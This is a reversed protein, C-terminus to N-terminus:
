RGTAASIPPLQGTIRYAPSTTGPQQGPLLKAEGAPPMERPTAGPKAPAGPVPTGAPMDESLDCGIVPWSRWATPNYGFTPDCYPPCRPPRCLHIAREFVTMQSGSEPPCRHFFAFCCDDARAKSSFGVLLIGATFLGAQFLRRSM